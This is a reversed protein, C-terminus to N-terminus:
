AIAAMKFTRRHLPFYVDAALAHLLNRKNKNKCRFHSFAFEFLYRQNSHSQRLALMRNIQTAWAHSPSMLVIAAHVRYKDRQLQSNRM